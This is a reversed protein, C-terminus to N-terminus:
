KVGELAQAAERKVDLDTAKQAIFRFLRRAKTKYGALQYTNAANLLMRWRQSDGQPLLYFVQEYEKAASKFRGLSEMAKARLTHFEVAQKGGCLTSSQVFSFAISPLGQTLYHSALAMGAKCKPEGEGKAFLEKYTEMELEKNGMAGYCEAMAALAEPTDVGRYYYLAEQWNEMKRCADGLAVRWQAVKEKSSEEKFLANAIERAKQYNGQLILTKALLFRLQFGYPAPPMTDLLDGIEVVAMDLFGNEVLSAVVDVAVPLELRNERKAKQYISFWKGPPYSKVFCELLVPDNKLADWNKGFEIAQDCLGKSVMARMIERAAVFAKPVETFNGSMVLNVAQDMEDAKVLAEVTLPCLNEFVQHACPNKGRAAKRFLAVAKKPRGANLMVRGRLVTVEQRMDRPVGAMSSPLVGVLTSPAVPLRNDLILRVARVREELSLRRAGRLAIGFHFAAKQSDGEAWLIWGLWYSARTDLPSPTGNTITKEFWGKAVKPQNNGLTFCGLLYFLNEAVASGAQMKAVESKLEEIATSNDGTAYRVLGVKMKAWPSYWSGEPVRKFIELAGKWRGLRFLAQAVWLKGGPMTSFEKQHEVITRWCGRRALLLLVTETPPFVYDCKDFALAVLRKFREIEPQGSFLSLRRYAEEYDGDELIEAIMESDKFPIPVRELEKKWDIKGVRLPDRWLSISSIRDVAIPDPWTVKPRREKEERVKQPLPLEGEPATTALTQNSTEETENSVEIGVATANAQTANKLQGASVTANTANVVPPPSVPVQSGTANTGNAGQFAPYEGGEETAGLEEEIRKRIEELSEQYDNGKLLDNDKLVKSANFAAPPLPATEVQVGVEGWVLTPIMLVLLAIVLRRMM